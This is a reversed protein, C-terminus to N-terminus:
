HGQLTLLEQGSAADWVKVTKDESASALRQGDPSFCVSRIRLPGKHGQCTLLLRGSYVDWVKVTPDHVGGASALRQGDPSFCVSQVGGFHGQITLLECTCRRLYWWEWGRRDWQCSDLVDL